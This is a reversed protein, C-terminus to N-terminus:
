LEKLRKTDKLAQHWRNAALLQCPIFIIRKSSSGFASSLFSSLFAVGGQKSKAATIPLLSWL